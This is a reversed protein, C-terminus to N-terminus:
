EQSPHVACFRIPQYGSIGSRRRRRDYLQHPRAANVCWGPANFKRRKREHPTNNCAAAVVACGMLVLECIRGAGAGDAYRGRRAFGRRAASGDRAQGLSSHEHSSRM